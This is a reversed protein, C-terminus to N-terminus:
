YKRPPLAMVQCLSCLWLPNKNAAFGRPFILKWEVQELGLHQDMLLFLVVSALLDIYIMISCTTATM